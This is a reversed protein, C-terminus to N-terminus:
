EAVMRYYFPRHQPMPADLFNGQQEFEQRSTEGIIRMSCNLKGVYRVTGPEYRKSCGLVVFGFRDQLRQALMHEKNVGCRGEGRRVRLPGGATPLARLVGRQRLHLLRPVGRLGPLRRPARQVRPLHADDGGDHRQRRNRSGPSWSRSADADTACVAAQCTYSARTGAPQASITM